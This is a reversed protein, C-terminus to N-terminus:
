SGKNMRERHDEGDDKWIHGGDIKGDLKGSVKMAEKGFM